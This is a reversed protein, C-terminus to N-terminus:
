ETSDLAIKNCRTKQFQQSHKKNSLAEKSINKIIKQCKRRKRHKRRITRAWNENKVEQM